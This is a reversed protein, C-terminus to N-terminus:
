VSLVPVSSERIIAYGSGNAGLHGGSPIHGIVLVDAKTLETVRNLVEPVNGSDIIVEAKTGVDQQLKAIEEAAFGVIKEKWAPDAYSGGPGYNEMGDTIHVLTLRAGFEAAMQAARSMTNRSHPSLDVACLVNRIAFERGPAEERLTDTWIPCLSEHLVKAAVSGLLFRYFAGHSHRSMVILSVKEDRAIQVIERAPDGELLVRKVTIGELEPRLVQDLDKHARQVIRAHLDRVTLEDGSELLRSPFSVPTVVHVLIVESHFHRALFAAEHVMGLPANPFDVPLLIKNMLMDM